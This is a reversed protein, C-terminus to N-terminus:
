ENHRVASSMVTMQRAGDDLQLVMSVRAGDVSFKVDSVNEALLMDSDSTTDHTIHDYDGHQLRLEDGSKYIRAYRDLPDTGYATSPPSGYYYVEVSTLGLVYRKISARRVMRDFAIKATYSDQAIGENTRDYLRNYGKLSDVMMVGVGLLVISGIMITVMLEVLTFARKKERDMPIM